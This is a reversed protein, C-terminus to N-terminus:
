ADRAGEERIQDVLNGFEARLQASTLTTPRFVARITKVTQDRNYSVKLEFCHKALVDFRDKLVHRARVNESASRASNSVMRDRYAQFEAQVADRGSSMDAWAQALQLAVPGHQGASAELILRGM